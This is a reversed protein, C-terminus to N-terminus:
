VPSSVQEEGSSVYFVTSKSCFPKYLRHAKGRARFDTGYEWKTRGVWAQDIYIASKDDIYRKKGDRDYVVVTKQQEKGAQEETFRSEEVRSPEGNDILQIDQKGVAESKVQPVDAGPPGRVEKEAREAQWVGKAPLQLGMQQEAVAKNKAYKLHRLIDKAAKKKSFRMQVMADDLKKGAIQRALMMLKKVSAKISPSKQATSRETRKIIDARKLRGHRRILDPAFQRIKAEERKVLKKGATLDEYLLDPPVTSSEAVTDPGSWGKSKAYGLVLRRENPKLKGWIHQANIAHQNKQLQKAHDIKLAKNTAYQQSFISSPGLSGRKPRGDDNKPKSKKKTTNM